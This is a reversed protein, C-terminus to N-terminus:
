DVDSVWVRFDKSDSILDHYRHAIIGGMEQADRKGTDTVEELQKEPNDVPSQWDALFALVCM